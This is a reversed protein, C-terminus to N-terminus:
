PEDNDREPTFWETMAPVGVGGWEWELDVWRWEANTKVHEIAAERTPFGDTHHGKSRYREARGMPGSPAPAPRFVIPHYRGTATNKLMGVPYSM